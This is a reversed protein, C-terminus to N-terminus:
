GGLKLRIALAKVATREWRVETKWRLDPFHSLMQDRQKQWDGQSLQAVKAAKVVELRATPKGDPDLVGLAQLIAARDDAWQKDEPM